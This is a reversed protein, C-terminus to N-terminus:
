IRPPPADSSPTTRPSAPPPSTRADDRGDAHPGCGAASVVVVLALIGAVRRAGAIMAARAAARAGRDRRGADTQARAHAGGGSRRAGARAGARDDASPQARRAGGADARTGPPGRAGSGGAPVRRRQERI